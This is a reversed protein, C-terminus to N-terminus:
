VAETLPAGVRDLEVTLSTATPVIRGHEMRLVTTCLAAADAAANVAAIVTTGGTRVDILWAGFRRRAEEDLSAFPDDLLLLPPAVTLAAALALQKRLGPSLRNIPAHPDLTSRESATATTGARSCAWANRADCVFDLYERVRLDTAAPLDRGVYMVHARAEYPFRRADVGAIQLTGAQPARLTALVQLLTTRGSGNPGSLGLSEGEAVTLDVRDVAVSGGIRYVLGQAHVLPIV